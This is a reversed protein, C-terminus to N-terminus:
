RPYVFVRNGEIIKWVSAMFAAGQEHRVNVYQIQTSKALSHVLDLMETGVIGFSM